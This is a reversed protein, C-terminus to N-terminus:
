AGRDSAGWSLLTPHGAGFVGNRIGIVPIARFGRIRAQISRSSSPKVRFMSGIVEGQRDFGSCLSDDIKEVLKGAM